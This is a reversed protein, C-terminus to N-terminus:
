LGPARGASSPIKTAQCKAPDIATSIKAAAVRSVVKLCALASFSKKEAFVKHGRQNCIFYAFQSALTDILAEQRMTPDMKCINITLNSLSRAIDVMEKPTLQSEALPTLQSEALTMEDGRDGFGNDAQQIENAALKAKTEDVERACSAVAMSIGVLVLNINRFQM